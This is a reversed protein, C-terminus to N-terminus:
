KFRHGGIRMRSNKLYASFYYYGKMSKSKGKYKITSQGQLTKKAAKICDKWQKTNIKGSDYQVLRRKLIGNGAPTFQHKQYIVGKLTSPFSKSKIRNMIVIGVALKGQYPEIGSECYIISSMLRLEAKTYKNKNSSSKSKKASSKKNENDKNQINEIESNKDTALVEQGVSTDVSANSSEESVTSSVDGGAADAQVNSDASVTEQPITEGAYSVVPSLSSCSVTLALALMAAKKLKM